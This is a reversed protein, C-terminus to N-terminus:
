AEQQAIKFGAGRLIAKAFEIRGTQVTFLTPKSVLKSKNHGAWCDWACFQPMGMLSANRTQYIDETAAKESQYEDKWEYAYWPKPLDKFVRIDYLILGTALAAVESIGRMKTAEDRDFPTMDFGTSAGGSERGIWKMVLVKEIPPASCYPAAITAPQFKMPSTNEDAIEASRRDMMFKWAVDWFGASSNYDPHMDADIMLVYDMKVQQATRICLNRVMPTPTDVVFWNFVNDVHEDKMLAPMLNAIYTSSAPHYGPGPFQALM